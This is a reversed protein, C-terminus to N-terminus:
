ICIYREQNTEEQKIKKNNKANRESKCKRIDAQLADIERDIEKIEQNAELLASTLKENRDKYMTMFSLFKDVNKKDM